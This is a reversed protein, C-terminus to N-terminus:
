PRPPDYLDPTIDVTRGALRSEDAKIALLTAALGQELASDGASGQEIADLFRDIMQADTGGHGGKRPQFQFLDVDGTVTATVRVQPDRLDDFDLMAKEGWIRNTRSGAQRFGQMNFNGRVGHEWELIVTQNDVLDKDPTFACLDGPYVDPSRSAPVPARGRRLDESNPAKYACRSYTEQPCFRCHTAPQKDPTLVNCGGFSSIKVVRHEHGVLWLMIDLDHCCKANLLGGNYRAKRHFRRMFSALHLHHLQEVGEVHVLQGLSGSRIIQRMRNYTPSARLNFGVFALTGTARQAQIMRYADDLTHAIPKELYIPKGARMAKCAVEAHAFEPVTIIVADLEEQALFADVDTFTRATDYRGAAVFAHLRDADVDCLGFLEARSTTEHLQPVFAAARHGTGIVGIKCRQSM